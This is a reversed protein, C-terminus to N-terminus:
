IYYKYIVGDKKRKIRERRLLFLLNVRIDDLKISFGFMDKLEQKIEEATKKEKNIIKLIKEAVSMKQKLKKMYIHKFIVERLGM